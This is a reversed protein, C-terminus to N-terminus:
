NGQLASVHLLEPVQSVNFLGQSVAGVQGLKEVLVVDELLVPGTVFDDHSL